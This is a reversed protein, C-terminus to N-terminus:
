ASAIHRVLETAQRLIDASGETEELVRTPYDMIAHIRFYIVVAAVVFILLAILVDNKNYLFDKFKEM